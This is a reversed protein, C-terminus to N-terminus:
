PVSGNMYGFLSLYTNNCAYRWFFLINFVYDRNNKIAMETNKWVQPAYKKIKGAKFLNNKSFYIFWWYLIICIAKLNIKFEFILACCTSFFLLFTATVMAYLTCAGERKGLIAKDPVLTYICFYIFDFVIM